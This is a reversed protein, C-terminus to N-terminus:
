GGGGIRGFSYEVTLQVFENRMHLDYFSGDISGGSSSIKTLGFYYDVGISVVENVRFAGGVILGFENTASLFVVDDNNPLFHWSNGLSM